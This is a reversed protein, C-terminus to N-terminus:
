WKSDLREMVKGETKEDSYFYFFGFMKGKQPLAFTGSPVFSLSLLLFIQSVYQWVWVGVEM